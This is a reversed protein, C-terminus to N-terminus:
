GSLNMSINVSEKYRTVVKKQTTKPTSSIQTKRKNSNFKYM